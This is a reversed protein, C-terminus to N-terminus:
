RDEWEQATIAFRLHDEWVGNIELYGVALGEERLGLKEVVRRSAANRPIIAVQVRHLCLDEFAYRLLLTMAEPVLGQGAVAEDIWYGVSGSQFPGRQVGSLNIEGSFRRGLFIGYGYGTGLQRERERARCRALFGSRTEVGEVAAHLQTPEWKALWDRNAIRVVQWQAFDGVVLPRLTVREGRLTSGATREGLVM